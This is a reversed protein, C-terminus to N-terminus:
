DNKAGGAGPRWCEHPTQSSIACYVLGATKASSPEMPKKLGISPCTELMDAGLIKTKKLNLDCTYDEM